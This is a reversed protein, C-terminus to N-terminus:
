TTADAADKPLPYRSAIFHAESLAEEFNERLQELEHEVEKLTLGRGAAEAQANCWILECIFKSM